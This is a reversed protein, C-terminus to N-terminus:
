SHKYRMNILYFSTLKTIVNVFKINNGRPLFVVNIKFNLPRFLQRSVTFASHSSAKAPCFSINKGCFLRVFLFTKVAFSGALFYLCM